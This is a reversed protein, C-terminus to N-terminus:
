AKNTTINQFKTVGCLRLVEIVNIIINVTEMVSAMSKVYNIYKISIYFFNCQKYLLFKM